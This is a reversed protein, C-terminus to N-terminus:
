LCNSCHDCRHDCRWLDMEKEHSKKVGIKVEEFADIVEEGVIYIKAPHLSLSHRLADQRLNTNIMANVAGIKAMASYVILLEPRNELFVCAVDGKKLGRSIFYNACRNVAENYERWSLQAEASKVAPRDPFKAANEELMSGWSERNEIAVNAMRKRTRVLTPLRGALGLWGKLYDFFSILGENSSHSDAAM